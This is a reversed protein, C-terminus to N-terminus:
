HVDDLTINHCDRFANKGNPDGSLNLEDGRAGSITSENEDRDAHVMPIVTMDDIEIGSPICKGSVFMAAQFSEPSHVAYQASRIFDSFCNKRMEPSMPLDVFIHNASCYQRIKEIILPNQKNKAVLASLQNEDLKISGDLLKEDGNLMSGFLQNQEDVKKHFEEEIGRLAHSTQVRNGDRLHKLRVKEDLATEAGIRGAQILKNIEAIQRDCDLQTEVSEKVMDMVRDIFGM